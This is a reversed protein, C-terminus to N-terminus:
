IRVTKRLCNTWATTKKFHFLSVLTCGKFFSSWLRLFASDSRTLGSMRSGRPRHAAPLFRVTQSLHMNARVAMICPPDALMRDIITSLHFLELSSAQSLADILKPNPGQMDV